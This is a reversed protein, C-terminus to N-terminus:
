VVLVLLVRGLAGVCLVWLLAPLRGDVLDFENGSQLGALLADGFAAVPQLVARAHVQRGVPRRARRAAALAPPCAAGLTASLTISLTARLTILSRARLAIRIAAIRRVTLAPAAVRLGGSWSDTAAM